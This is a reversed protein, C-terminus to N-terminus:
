KFYILKILQKKQDISISFDKLFRGGVNVEPAMDSYRVVLGEFKMGAIEVPVNLKAESVEYVTNARRARGVVGLDEYDIQNDVLFSKPIQITMGSGSDLHFITEIGGVKAKVRFRAPTDYALISPDNPDLEGETIIIQRNPYDITLLKGEFFGSGIIGAVSIGYDRMMLRGPEIEFSGLKLKEVGVEKEERFNIGDFNSTTGVVPLKLENYLSMDIRGIGSAGIDLMFEYPGKGNVFAEIHPRNSVLKFPIVEKEQAFLLNASLLLLFIYIIKM